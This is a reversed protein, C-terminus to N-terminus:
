AAPDWDSVRPYGMSSPSSHIVTSLQPSRDGREHYRENLVVSGQPTDDKSSMEALASTCRWESPSMQCPPTWVLSTHWPQKCRFPAFSSHAFCLNPGTAPIVMNMSTCFHIHGRLKLLPSFVFLCTYLTSCRALIYIDDVASQYVRSFHSDGTLQSPPIM